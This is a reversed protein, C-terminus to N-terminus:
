WAASSFEVVSTSSCVYNFPEKSCLRLVDQLLHSPLSSIRLPFSFNKQSPRSPIPSDDAAVLRFITTAKQCIFYLWFRFSTKFLARKDSDSACSQLRLHTEATRWGRLNFYTKLLITSSTLFFDITWIARTSNAPKCPDSSRQFHTRAFFWYLLFLFYSFFLPFPSREYSQNIWIQKQGVIFITMETHMKSCMISISVILQEFGKKWIWAPFPNCKGIIKPQSIPCDTWKM